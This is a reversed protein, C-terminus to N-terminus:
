LSCNKDSSKRKEEGFGWLPPVVYSV